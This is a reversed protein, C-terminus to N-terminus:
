FSIIDFFKERKIQFDYFIIKKVFKIGRLCIINYNVLCDCYWNDCLSLFYLWTTFELYDLMCVCTFIDHYGFRFIIIGVSWVYWMVLMFNLFEWTFRFLFFFHLIRLFPGVHLWWCWWWDSCPCWRRRRGVM